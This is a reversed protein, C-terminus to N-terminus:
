EKLSNAKLVLNFASEQSFKSFQENRFLVYKRGQVMLGLGQTKAFDRAAEGTPPYPYDDGFIIGDESLLPYFNQLDSKVSEYDHAADIYILDAKISKHQFFTAAMSSIMPFPIIYDKFGSHIVNNLFREYLTPYGHKLYLQARWKGNEWHELSGLWTDVCLIRASHIGLKQLSQAMKIASHGKWSGVEIIIQPQTIKILSSFCDVDTLFNQNDAPLYSKTPLEGYIQRALLEAQNVENEQPNM